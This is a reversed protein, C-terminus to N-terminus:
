ALLDILRGCSGTAPTAYISRGSDAPWRQPDRRDVYAALPEVDVTEVDPAAYDAMGKWQEFAARDFYLVLSTSQAGPLSSSRSETRVTVASRSHKLPM